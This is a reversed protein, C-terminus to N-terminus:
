PFVEIQQLSTNMECEAKFLCRETICASTVNTGQAYSGSSPIPLYSDVVCEASFAISLLCNCAYRVWHFPGLRGQSLVGAWEYAKCSLRTRFVRFLAVETL